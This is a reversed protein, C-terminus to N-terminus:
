CSGAGGWAGCFGWSLLPGSAPAPSLSSPSQGRLSCLPRLPATHAQPWRHTVTATPCATAPVGPGPSRTWSWGPVPQEGRRGWSGPRSGVPGLGPGAAPGTSARAPHRGGLGSPEARSGPTTTVRPRQEAKWELHSLSLSAVRRYNPSLRAAQWRLQVSAVVVLSLLPRVPPLPLLSSPSRPSSFRSCHAGARTPVGWPAVLEGSSLPPLETGLFGPSPPRSASSPGPCCTGDPCQCPGPGRGGGGEEAAAGAGARRRPAPWVGM